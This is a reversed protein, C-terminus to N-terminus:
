SEDEKQSAPSDSQAPPTTASTSTQPKAANGAKLWTSFQQPAAGAPKATFVLEFTEVLWALRNAVDTTTWTPSKMLDRTTHPSAKFYHDSKKAAFSKQKAAKNLNEDLLTQNGLSEITKEYEEDAPLAGNFLDTMWTPTPTQPAIHELHLKKTDFEIPNAGARLADDIAHLIAKAWNTSEIKEDLYKSVDFDIDAKKILAARLHDLNKDGRFTRSQEAFFTELDQANGGSGFYRFVLVYCLRVVDALQDETLSHAQDFVTLLLVRYSASITRLVKLHYGYKKSTDPQLLAKYAESSNQLDNWFDHTKRQQEKTDSDSIRTTAVDVINKKNVKGENTAVLFHRFFQEVDGGILNDLVVKWELNNTVLKTEFESDSLGQRLNMLVRGRVLDSPGLPVGRANLTIFVDLSEKVNGTTVKLVLVKERIVDLLANLFQLQSKEIAEKFADESKTPNATRERDEIESLALGLLRSTEWYAKRLPLSLDKLKSDRGPPETRPLEKLMNTLFMTKLLPNSVFKPDKRAGSPEYLFQRAKGLVDIELLEADIPVIKQVSLRSLTDRIRAVLLFITTLRQQGDVVWCESAQGSEDSDQLILSGLFHSENPTKVLEVLDNFLDEVASKTWTYNRQYEAVKIEKYGHIATFLGIVDGGKIM